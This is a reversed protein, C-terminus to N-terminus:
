IDFAATGVCCYQQQLHLRGPRNLSCHLLVGARQSYHGRLDLLLIATPLAFRDHLLWTIQLLVCCQWFSYATSVYTVSSLKLEHPGIQGLAIGCFICDCDGHWVMSKGSILLLLAACCDNVTV